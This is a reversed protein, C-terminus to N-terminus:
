PKGEKTKGDDAALSEFHEAIAEMMAIERERQPTTGRKAYVNRRMALERRACNALEANTFRASM